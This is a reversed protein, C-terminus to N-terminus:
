PTPPSGGKRDEVGLSDTSRSAVVTVATASFLPVLVVGTDSLGYM